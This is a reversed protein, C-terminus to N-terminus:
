AAPATRPSMPGPAPRTRHLLTRPRHPRPPHHTPRALGAQVAGAAAKIKELVAIRDIRVGADVEGGGTILGGLSTLVQSLYAQVADGDFGLVPDTDVTATM